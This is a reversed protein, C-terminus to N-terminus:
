LLAPQPAAPGSSLFSELASLQDAVPGLWVSGHSSVAHRDEFPKLAQHLSTALPVEAMLLCAQCLLTASILWGSDRQLRTLGHRTLDQLIALAPQRHGAEAAALAAACRLAPLASYHSAVQSLEAAYQARRGQRGALWYL